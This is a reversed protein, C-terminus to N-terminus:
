EFKENTLNWGVIKWLENDDKELYYNWYIDSFTNTKQTVRITCSKNDNKANYLSPKQEINIISLKEDKLLKISDKLNSLQEEYNNLSLFDDSYLKRQQHLLEDIVTEDAIMDGYLLRYAKNYLTMVEDPTKPYDDDGNFAIVENYIKLAESRKEKVFREADTDKKSYSTVVVAIVASIGVLVVLIAIINNALKKM